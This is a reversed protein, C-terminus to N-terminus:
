TCTAPAARAATGRAHLWLDGGAGPEGGRVARRLHHHLHRRAVGRVAQPLAGRKGAAGAGGCAAAHHRARLGARRAGRRGAGAGDGGAGARGHPRGRPAGRRHLQGPRRPRAHGAGDRWGGGGREGRGADAARPVAQGGAGRSRVGARQAALPVPVRLPWGRRPRLLLGARERGGDAPLAGRQPAVGGAGTCPRHRRPEGGGRGGAAGARGAPSGGADRLRRDHRGQPYLPDGGALAGRRDLADFVAENLAHAGERGLWLEPGRGLAEESTWGYVREAARNWAMLRGDMDTIMVADYLSDFVLAQRQLAAHADKYATIDFATGLGAPEGRYEIRSATYDVWRESGDKRLIRFEYRPPVAEGRQRALGRERVM